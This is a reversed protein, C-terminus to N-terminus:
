VAESLDLAEKLKLNDYRYDDKLIVAEKTIEYIDSFPILRKQHKIGFISKAIEIQLIQCTIPDFFLDVVRGLHKGSLTKVKNSYVSIDKEIVERIKIIEDPFIITDPDSVYIKIKWEIIDNVSLIKDSGALIGQKVWFAEIKGTQNDIILDYVEGLLEGTTQEVIPTGLFKTYQKQLM